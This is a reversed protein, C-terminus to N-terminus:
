RRGQNRKFMDLDERKILYKGGFLVTRLKKQSILRRLSQPRIGLIRAAQVLDLYDNFPENVM